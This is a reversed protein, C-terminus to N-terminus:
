LTSNSFSFNKNIKNPVIPPEAIADIDTKVDVILPKNINIAELIVKNLEEPKTVSFGIEGMTRAMEAFDTEPLIWLEDSNSTKKGFM